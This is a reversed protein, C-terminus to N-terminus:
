KKQGIYSETVKTQIVTATDGKQYSEATNTIVRHVQCSTFLFLLMLMMGVILRRKRPTVGIKKSKM